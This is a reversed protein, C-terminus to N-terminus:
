AIDEVMRRDRVGHAWRRWLVPNLSRRRSFGPDFDWRPTSGLRPNRGGGTARAQFAGTGAAVTGVSGAFSGASRFGEPRGVRFRGPVGFFVQWGSRVGIIAGHSVQSAEKAGPFVVIGQDEGGELRNVGDGRFPVSKPIRELRHRFFLVRGIM